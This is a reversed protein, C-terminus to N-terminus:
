FDAPLVRFPFDLKWSNLKQAKGRIANEHQAIAVIIFDFLYDESKHHESTKLGNAVDSVHHPHWVYSTSCGNLIQASGRLFEVQHKKSKQTRSLHEKM